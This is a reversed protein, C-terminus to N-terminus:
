ATYYQITDLFMLSEHGDYERVMFERGKAVWYMELGAPNCYFDPWTNRCYETIWQVYDPGRDALLKAIAPCFLVEERINHDAATSWGVGYERNLIVAVEGRTNYLRNM